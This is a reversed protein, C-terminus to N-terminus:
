IALTYTGTGLVIVDAGAGAACADVATDSNAALLAERLTCSGDSVVDDALSTVTITAAAASAAQTAVLACGLFGGLRRARARMDITVLEGTEKSRTMDGGHERSCRILYRGNAMEM